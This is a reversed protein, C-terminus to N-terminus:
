RGQVGAGQLWPFLFSEVSDEEGKRYEQDRFDPFPFLNYVESRM